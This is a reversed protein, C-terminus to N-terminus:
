RSTAWGRPSSTSKASTTAGAWGGRRRSRAGGDGRVVRRAAGQLEGAAGSRLAGRVHVDRGRRRAGGAHGRLDGDAGDGGPSGDGTRGRGHVVRAAHRAGHRHRGTGVVGDREAHFERGAATRRHDCGRRRRRSAVLALHGRYADRGRGRGTPRARVGRERGDGVVRDEGRDRLQRGVCRRAAGDSGVRADNAARGREPGGARLGDVGGAGRHEGAARERARARRRHVAGRGGRVRPGARAGGDSARELGAHDEGAVRGALGRGAGGGDGHCQRCHACAGCVGRGGITVPESFVVRLNFWGGSGIHTGPLDEFEASLPEAPAVQAEGVAFSVRLTQLAEGTGRKGSWATATLTYAGDALAAGHENGGSDGYLSWPAIGETQTVDDDLASSSLALTVSEVGGNAAVEARFGYDKAADIETLRAGDALAGVDAHATADVLVFRTLVTPAVTFAVSLSGLVAGTGGAQAYATATLTYSGVPLAAGTGGRLLYPAADDARAAADGDQPGALALRVSGVAADAATEVRFDYSGGAPDAVRVTAGDAVPGLDAGSAADVLVFGTLVAAAGATGPGPVSMSLAHALRRGDGTCIAGTEACPRGGPLVITVDRDSDPMVKMEYAGPEDDRQSAESVTGNTVSLAYRRVADEGATVPESFAMKFRISGSGDHREPLGGMRATLAGSAQGSRLTSTGALHSWAGWGAGNRARVRYFRQSGPALSRHVYATATDGTDEVLTGWSRAGDESVEIGYGLIPSGNAAPAAWALGIATGSEPTATLGSPQGPQAGLVAERWPGVTLADGDYARVRVTLGEARKAESPVAM